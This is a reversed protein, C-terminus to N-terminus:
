IGAAEEAPAAAEANEAPKEAPAATAAPEATRGGGCAALSMVMVLALLLAFLKKM